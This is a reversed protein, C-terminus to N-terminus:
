GAARGCRAGCGAPAACLSRDNRAGCAGDMVSARHECGTRACSRCCPDTHAAASPPAFRAHAPAPPQDIPRPPRSPGAACSVCESCCCTTRARARVTPTFGASATLSAITCCCLISRRWATPGGGHPRSPPSRATRIREAPGRVPAACTYSPKGPYRQVDLLEAVVGVDELHSGVLLLVAVICRVQHWLFALGTITVEYAAMATSAAPGCEQIDVSVIRRRFNGQRQARHDAYCFNRFDHEGVFSQAATRM